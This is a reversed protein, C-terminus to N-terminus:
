QQQQQKRSGFSCVRQVDVRKDCIIKFGGIKFFIRDLTESARVWKMQSKRYGRQKESSMKRM